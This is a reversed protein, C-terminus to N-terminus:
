WREGIVDGQALLEPAVEDATVTRSYGAYTIAAVSAMAAMDAEDPSNSPDKAELRYKRDKDPIFHRELQRALTDNPPFSIYREPRGMDMAEITRRADEHILFYGWTILDAYDVPCRAVPRTVEAAVLESLEQGGGHFVLVRAGRNQLQEGVGKGGTGIWDVAIPAGQASEAALYRQVALAANITNHGERAAQIPMIVRGLRLCCGTEAHGGGTDVGVGARARDDPTIETICNTLRDYWDRPVITNQASPPPFQGLVYIYYGPENEHGAWKEKIAALSPTGPIVNGTRAQWEACALGSFNVVAEPPTQALYQGGADNKDVPNFAGVMHANDQITGGFLTDRVTPHVGNLEELVVWVHGPAHMMGAIGAANDRESMAMVQAFWDREAGQWDYSKLTGGLPTGRKRADDHAKQFEQWSLLAASELKPGGFTAKSRPWLAMNVAVAGGIIRSKGTGSGGYFCTRPYKQLVEVGREQDPTMVKWGLMDSMAARLDRRWLRILKADAPSM